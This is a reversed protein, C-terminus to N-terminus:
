PTPHQLVARPRRLEQPTQSPVQYNFLYLSTPRTNPEFLKQPDGYPVIGKMQLGSDDACPEVICCRALTQSPYPDLKHSRNWCLPQSDLCNFGCVSLRRPGMSTLTTRFADMLTHCRRPETRTTPTHVFRPRMIACSSSHMSRHSCVTYRSLNVPQCPRM